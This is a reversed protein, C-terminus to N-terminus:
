IALSNPYKMLANELVLFPGRSPRLPPEDPAPTNPTPISPYIEFSRAKQSIPTIIKNISLPHITIWPPLFSCSFM